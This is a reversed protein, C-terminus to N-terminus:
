GTLVRSGDGKEPFPSGDGKRLARLLDRALAWVVLSLTAYFFTNLLGNWWIPKLPLYFGRGDLRQRPRLMLLGSTEAKSGPQVDGRISLTRLPLGWAEDIQTMLRPDDRDPPQIRAWRPVLAAPSGENCAAPARGRWCQSVVRTGGARDWRFVEWHLQDDLPAYLELVTGRELSVALACGWAVAVNLVTGSLLLSGILLVRHRM